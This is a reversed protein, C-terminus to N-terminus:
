QAVEATHDAGIGRAAFWASMEEFAQRAGVVCADVSAATDDVTHAALARFAKWQSGTAAGYGDFYRNGAGPALHFREAAAPAIFRGGLTSGEMVYWAGILGPLGTPVDLATCRIVTDPAVGLAAADQELWSAKRRADFEGTLSAPLAAAMREEWPAVFGLFACVIKTYAALDCDLQGLGLQRELRDHCDATRAKLSALLEPM